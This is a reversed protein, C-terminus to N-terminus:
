IRGVNHNDYNIDDAIADIERKRLKDVCAFTNDDYNVVQNFRYHVYQGLVYQFLQNGIGGWLKVIVM